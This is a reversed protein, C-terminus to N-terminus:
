FEYKLALSVIHKSYAYTAKDKSTKNTYAYKLTTNIHKSFSKSLTMSPNYSFETGRAAKQKKTDDWTFTVSPKMKVSPILQPITFSTIIKYTNLDNNESVADKWDISFTLNLKTFKIFEFAQALSIGPTETSFASDKQGLRKYHIKLTSVGLETFRAKESLVFDVHTSFWLLEYKAAWDKLLLNSDINFGLTGKKGLIPHKNTTKLQLDFSLADNQYVKTVKRRSHFTYKTNFHPTVTFRKNLKFRYKSKLDTESVLAGTNSLTVTAEDAETVVNSDYKITEHLKVSWDRQEPKFYKLKIKRIKAKAQDAIQTSDEYDIVKEYQPIVKKELRERQLEIQIKNNKEVKMKEAADLYINGIEFLAPQKVTTDDNPIKKYYVVAKDNDELTQSISGVYYYSPGKKYDRSASKKFQELAPKLKQSAYYAQGLEYHIDKAESGLRLAQRFAKISRDFKQLKNNCLGTWYAATARTKNSGRVKKLKEIAQLYAGKKYLVYIDAMQKKSNAAQSMQSGCILTFGLLLLMIKKM